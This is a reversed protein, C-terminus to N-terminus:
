AGRTLSVERKGDSFTKDYNLVSGANLWVSSGDPLSIHTKSGNHTIIESKKAIESTANSIDTVKTPLFAKYLYIGAFAVAALAVLLYLIKRGSPRTPLPLADDVIKEEKWETSTSKLKELHRLFAEDGEKIHKPSLQWIDTVNQLAYHMDPDERLLEELELLEEPSAEGALKKSFLCWIRDRYM